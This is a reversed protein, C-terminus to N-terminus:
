RTLEARRRSIAALSEASFVYPMVQKMGEPTCLSHDTLCLERISKGDCRVDELYTKVVRVAEVVEHHSGDMPTGFVFSDNCQRLAQCANVLNM